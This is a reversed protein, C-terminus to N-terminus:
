RTAVGPGATKQIMASIEAVNKHDRGGANGKTADVPTKGIADAIDVRAGHELLYKVVDTWGWNIAGYLATQGQRNTMTSPRAIRATHGSTDTIRANVDAGAQRLIEMTGISRAQVDPSTYNGRPDRISVFYV